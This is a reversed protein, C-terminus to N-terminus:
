VHPINGLNYIQNITTQVQYRDKKRMYRVEQMLISQENENHVQLFKRIRYKVHLTKNHDYKEKM